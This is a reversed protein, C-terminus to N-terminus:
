KIVKATLVLTDKFNDNIQTILSYLGYLSFNDSMGDYREYDLNSLRKSKNMTNTIKVKVDKFGYQNFIYFLDRASYERIHSRNKDNNYLYEIPVYPYYGLLLSLRKRLNLANPTDLYVFGGNKCCDLKIKLLSKPTHHLHEIVALSYALDYNNESKFEENEIDALLVNFKFKQSLEKLSNIDTNLYAEPHEIVTVDYGSEALFAAVFGFGPGIELIKKISRNQELFILFNSLRIYDINFSKRIAHEDFNKEVFQILKEKNM